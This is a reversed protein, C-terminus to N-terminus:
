DFIFNPLSIDSKERLIIYLAINNFFENKDTDSRSLEYSHDIVLVYSIIIYLAM